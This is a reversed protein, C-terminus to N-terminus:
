GKTECTGFRRAAFLELGANPHRIESKKVTLAMVGWEMALLLDVDVGKLRGRWAEIWQSM